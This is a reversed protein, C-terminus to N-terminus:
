PAFPSGEPRGACLNWRLAAKESESLRSPVLQRRARVAAGLSKVENAHGAFVRANALQVRIGRFSFCASGQRPEGAGVRPWVADGVFLADGIRYAFRETASSRSGLAEVRLPGARLVDGAHLLVDFQRGDTAFKVGPAFLRSLRSQFRTIASPIASLAGYCDQFFPLATLHDDHVCTELVYQLDIGLADIAAAIQQSFDTRIVGHADVDCVPDVVVGVRAREDYVLYTLTGMKPHSFPKVIVDPQWDHVRGSTWMGPPADLQARTARPGGPPGPPTQSAGRTAFVAEM